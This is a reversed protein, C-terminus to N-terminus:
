QRLSRETEVDYRGFVTPTEIRFCIKKGTFRSKVPVSRYRNRFTKRPPKKKKKKLYTIDTASRRAHLCLFPVATRSSFQPPSFTIRLFPIVRSRNTSLDSLNKGDYRQGSVRINDFDVIKEPIERAVAGRKTKGIYDVNASSRLVPSFLRVCQRTRRFDSAAIQRRFKYLPAGFRTHTLRQPTRPPLTDDLDTQWAIQSLNDSQIRSRFGGNKMLSKGFTEFRHEYFM